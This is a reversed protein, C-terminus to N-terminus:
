GSEQRLGIFALLPEIDGRDAAKLSSIYAIRRVNMKQLDHGAAWDIANEGCIRDLVVDAM